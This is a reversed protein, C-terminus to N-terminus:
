EEENLVGQNKEFPIGMNDHWEKCKEKTSCGTKLIAVYIDNDTGDAGYYPYSIYELLDMLYLSEKKFLVNAPLTTEKWVGFSNECEEIKGAEGHSCCCGLTQVGILNLHQIEDAICADILVTNNVKSTINVKVEKYNGYLCM